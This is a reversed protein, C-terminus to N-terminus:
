NSTMSPEFTTIGAANLLQVLSEYREVEGGPWTRTGNIYALVRTKGREANIRFESGDKTKFTVVATQVDAPATVNWETVISAQTLEPFLDIVNKIFWHRM